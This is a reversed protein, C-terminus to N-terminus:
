GSEATLRARILLAYGVVSLALTVVMYRPSDAVGLVALMAFNGIAAALQADAPDGIEDVTAGDAHGDALGIAFGADQDMLSAQGLLLM